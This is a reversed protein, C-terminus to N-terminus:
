LCLVDPTPLKVFIGLPSLRHLALNVSGDPMIFLQHHDAGLMREFARGDNAFDLADQLLFVVFMLVHQERDANVIVQEVFPIVGALGVHHAFHDPVKRVIERGVCLGERTEEVGEVAGLLGGFGPLVPRRLRSWLRPMAMGAMFMVPLIGTGRRTNTYPGAASAWASRREARCM